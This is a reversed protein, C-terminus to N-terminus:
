FNWLVSLSYMDPSGGSLDVREYEARVALSFVKAQLGAGYAVRTDTSQSHLGPNAGCTSPTVCTTNVESQLRSMGAKAYLDLIPLPLPMYLLGFVSTAKQSVDVNYALGPAVVVGSAAPHGFDAYELEAGLFPIPRVGLLAKWGTHNEVFGSVSGDRVHAEGVGGGVYLGLPADARAPASAGIIAAGAVLSISANRWAARSFLQHM